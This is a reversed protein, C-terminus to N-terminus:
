GEPASLPGFRYHGTIPYDFLTDEVKTGQCINHIVLPRAGDQSRTDSVIVIHPLGGPLEQTVLDGPAYEVTQVIREFNRVPEIGDNPDSYCCFLIVLYPGYRWRHLM